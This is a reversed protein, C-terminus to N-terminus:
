ATELIDALRRTWGRSFAPWTSLSAMFRLREGVMKRVVQDPNAENVLRMTQPGIAGDASAGIASQLWKVSQRVGSNVAADFLPYRIPSPMEDARVADWYLDRYIAKATSVPMEAMPGNYGHARAVKITVGWMTEGGPDSPHNSYSGEHGLLRHFAQDFNM